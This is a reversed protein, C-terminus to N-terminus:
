GLKFQRSTDIRLERINIWRLVINIIQVLTEPYESSRWTQVAVM